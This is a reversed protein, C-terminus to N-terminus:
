LAHRATFLKVSLNFTERPKTFIDTLAALGLKGLYRTDKFVFYIFFDVLFYSFVFVFACGIIGVYSIVLYNLVLILPAVILMKILEYRVHGLMILLRSYLAAPMIFVWSWCSIALVKASEAYRAGYLLNIILGSALCTVAAMVIGVAFQVTLVSKVYSEFAQRDALLKRDMETYFTAVLVYGIFAAQPIIRISASYIGVAKPDLLNSMILVDSQNYFFFLVTSIFVPSSERVITKLRNLSFNRLRILGFYDPQHFCMGATLIFAQLPMYIMMANFSFDYHAGVVLYAASFLRSVVSAVAISKPKNQAQLYSKIFVVKLFFTAVVVNVILFLDRSFDKFILYYIVIAAVYLVWGFLLGLSTSTVYEADLRNRVMEKIIFQDLGLTIFVMFITSISMAVSFRSFMEPGFHRAVLSISLVTFLIATVSEISYLMANTINSAGKKTSMSM